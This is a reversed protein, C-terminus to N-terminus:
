SSSSPAHPRPRSGHTNSLLEWLNTEKKSNEIARFMARDDGFKYLLDHTELSQEILTQVNKMHEIAAQQDKKAKERKQKLEQNTEEERYTEKSTEMAELWEEEEDGYEEEYAKKSAEMAETLEGREGADRLRSGFSYRNVLPKLTRPDVPILRNNNGILHPATTFGDGSIESGPPLSVGAPLKSGAPLITGTQLKPAAPAAAVSAAAAGAPVAPPLGQRPSDPVLEWKLNGPAHMVPAYPPLRTGLLFEALYIRFYRTPYLAFVSDLGPERTFRVCVPELDQHNIESVLISTSLVVDAAVKKFLSFNRQYEERNAYFNPDFCVWIMGSLGARLSKVFQESDVPEPIIPNVLVNQKCLTHKCKSTMNKWIGAAHGLTVIRAKSVKFEALVNAIVAADMQRWKEASQRVQGGIGSKGFGPLDVLLVNFGRKYMPIAFKVWTWSTTFKEYSHLFVVWEGIGTGTGVVHQLVRTYVRSNSSLSFEAVETKLFEVLFNREEDTFVPSQLIATDSHEIVMGFVGGGQDTVRYDKSRLISM